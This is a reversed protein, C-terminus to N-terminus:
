ERACLPCGLLSSQGKIEYDERALLYHAIEPWSISSPFFISVRTRRGCKPPAATEDPNRLGSMEWLPCEQFSRNWNWAMYSFTCPLPVLSLLSAEQEGKSEGMNGLDFSLADEVKHVAQWSLCQFCSFVEKARESGLQGQKIGLKVPSAAM